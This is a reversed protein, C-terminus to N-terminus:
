ATLSLGRGKVIEMHHEDCYWRRENLINAPGKCVVCRRHTHRHCYHHGNAEREIITPRGCVCCSNTEPEVFEGGIILRHTAHDLCFWKGNRVVCALDRCVTCLHYKAM